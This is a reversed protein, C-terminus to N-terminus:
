KQIKEVQATSFFCAEKRFLFVKKGTNDTVEATQVDESIENLTVAETRVNQREERKDNKDGKKKRKGAKWIPFRAVAHEGKKVKFGMAKWRAFTHIDEDAGIIGAEILAVTNIGIIMENTM